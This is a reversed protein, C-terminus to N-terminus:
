EQIRCVCLITFSTLLYTNTPDVGHNLLISSVFFGVVTAVIFTPTYKLLLLRPNYVTFELIVRKVVDAPLSWSTLISM